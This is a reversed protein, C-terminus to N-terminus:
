FTWIYSFGFILNGELLGRENYFEAAKRRKVIQRAYPSLTANDKLVVDYIADYVPLINLLVGTLEIKLEAEANELYAPKSNRVGQTSEAAGESITISIAPVPQDARRPGIYINAAPVIDTLTESAILAARWAKYVAEIATDPM